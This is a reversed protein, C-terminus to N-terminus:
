RGRMGQNGGPGKGGRLRDLLIRKFEEEAKYLKLVKTAPLVSKFKGHYAKRLDLLQQAELLEEDALRAAEEETITQMDMQRITRNRQRSQQMIAERKDSYENYVPWFVQAEQPSLDLEQTLYAILHAEIKERGQPGMPGPQAMVTLPLMLVILISPMTAKM